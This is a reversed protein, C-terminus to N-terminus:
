AQNATSDLTSLRLQTPPKITTPAQPPLEAMAGAAEAGLAGVGVGAGAGALAFTSAHWTACAILM